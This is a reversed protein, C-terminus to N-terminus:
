GADARLADEELVRDLTEVVRDADAKTFPLPPKIKIVNADPGDTSLLIGRGRMREVAHAARATAPTRAERDTVLEVGLFLGMGRVDGVLAHGDLLTRLGTLFHSGVEAARAQLGEEELVDLVALGVACSVPNGGFTNFYEMGTDFAEAVERTTIVASLPHGNGMPKGVTVIDPVVGQSEFGWRHAGVRGFGVQVEDAVCLGGAERVHLYAAELFGEPLVIQGGCSPLSEAFFAAVGGREAAQETAERVHEAYRVGTQRHTGRYPGRYPDPLPVVHTSPPAGRGGPGQFKYPSLDILSTTHGHYAGDLVIVDERGTAARAMRLALENAESGSNVVYCVSLPEPFLEVLREAYRVLNEHLYRTNTNLVAAQRRLAEVVRPHEHGVHAVNNVCDLYPQGDIDYLHQMWGRVIHLPRRYAVSLNPGLRRRRLARVSETDAPGTYRVLEPLGLILNPDPSLSKWLTRWDPRAVGPFEGDRDLLDVVIQLHLHPPWDGNGPRDGITALRQGRRVATGRELELADPALHGYLTHFVVDGDGVEHRLIVTPGYDLRGANDRVAHVTGALPALVPTGPPGFLDVGLHVTRWVDGEDTDVRFLDETYWRRVEDYAGLGLTAGTEEMRGFLARTWAEADDGGGLGGLETSGVSLDFLVREVAGPDPDLVPGVDARHDHLWAVVSATAPCAPRDAADRLLYEVFRPHADDLQELLRWAGDESVTLYPDDRDTAGASLVVSVCLRLTILPFLAALEDDTLTYSLHYGRVVAAAAALPEVRDLMAYAATIAPEAARWGHVLDGFDVLGTVLRPRDPVAAGVLVNWDNGDGHIVATPLADFLPAAADVRALHRELLRRRDDDTVADIGEEVVARGRTLDFPFTRHAAPHDYEELAAGAAGMLHGTQELLDLSRPRVEALPTGEVWTLLRMFHEGDPLTVTELTRMDLSPLIRPFDFRSVAALRDLVQAQCELLGADETAYIKLVFSDGEATRIRFSRDEYGPLPTARATLGYREAALREAQGRSLDPPQRM